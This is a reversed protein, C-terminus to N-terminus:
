ENAKDIIMKKISKARSTGILVSDLDGDGIEEIYIERENRHQLM